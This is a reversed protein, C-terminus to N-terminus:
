SSNSTTIEKKMKDCIYDKVIVINGGLTVSTLLLRVEILKIYPRVYL